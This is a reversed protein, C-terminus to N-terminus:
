FEIKLGLGLFKIIANKLWFYDSDELNEYLVM